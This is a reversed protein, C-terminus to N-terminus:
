HLGDRHHQERGYFLSGYPAASHFLSHRAPGAPEPVPAPRTKRFVRVRLCGRSVRVNGPAVSTNPWECLPDSGSGNFDTDIFPGRLRLPCCSLAADNGFNAMRVDWFIYPSSFKFFDRAS